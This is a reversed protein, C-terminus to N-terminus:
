IEYFFDHGEGIKDWRKGNGPKNSFMRHFFICADYNALHRNFLKIFILM